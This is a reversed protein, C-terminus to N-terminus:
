QWAQTALTISNLVNLAAHIALRAPCFHCSGQLLLGPDMVHLAPQMFYTHTHTPDM